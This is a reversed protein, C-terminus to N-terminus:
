YTAGVKLGVAGDGSYSSTSDVTFPFLSYILDAGLTINKIRNFSYGIGFAPVLQACTGVDFGTLVELCLQLGLKSVFDVDLAIAMLNDSLTDTGSRDFVDGHLAHQTFNTYGISFTSSIFGDAFAFWSLCFLVFLFFLKKM